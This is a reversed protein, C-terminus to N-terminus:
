FVYINMAAVSPIVHAWSPFKNILKTFDQTHKEHYEWFTTVIAVDALLGEYHKDAYEFDMTVNWPEGPLGHTILAFHGLQGNFVTAPVEDILSWGVLKVGPKPGVILSSQTSGEMTFTLRTRNESLWERGQYALSVVGDDTTPEPGPLWYNDFRIQHWMSYFPVACFIESECTNMQRMPIVEEPSAVGRIMRVSNRDMERFLFGSDTDRILGREDHYVRLVHTVYHRQVTPAKASDDRYPFGVQTFCAMLLAILIFVTLRSILESARKLLQVLPMMYSGILLTCLAAISGVLYEPNKSGGSRGSIPVFLKMFMHYYQTAWLMALLQFGLHVALWKRTTNQFGMVAIVLSSMVSVLLLVMFIYASRIGFFTLPIVLLAWFLSVGILRSQVTQSLNLPTKKDAFVKNVIVQAFCHCLLAPCCYLGLILYPTSFWTLARGMADLQRGMILCAILSMVTGLVTALFGYVAEKIITAEGLRRVSRSLGFYPMLVALIAVLSNITIAADTSYCVFLLGMFDFFVSYGKTTEENGANALEDSNVMERTLALINDGTRQLVPLSLYDINDYKTHYRYGEIMHAFDMGPVHGFDRFIRFDTDSPILGSQFVEEAVAHAFPHRIARAYVDIMWPHQPGSQFLVEKGGSGASELNLFASVQKAWPHQTIFGHAAQLPTEEAGNFLFIISYRNRVPQRSIVRLIELMVAVSAGDDSAGPSSAVSDFHSNLMLVPNTGNDNEGPLKVVLNQVNRYISTLPNGMFAIPYGGTVVQHEVLVDQNRHKSARILEIERKLYDATLKENAESGTPKPGIDNLAKLNEWAREAIFAGPYSELDARTLADPLSTFLYSSVTGCFLMLVVGFMGLQSDLQHLNPQEDEPPSAAKVVKGKKKDVM